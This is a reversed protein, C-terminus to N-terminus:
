VQQSGAGGYMRISEGQPLPLPIKKGGEEALFIEEIALSGTHLQWNEGAPFTIVAEGQLTHKEPQFSIDLHYTGTDAFSIDYSFFLLFFLSLRHFLSSTSLLRIPFVANM